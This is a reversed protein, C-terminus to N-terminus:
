YRFTHKASFFDINQDLSLNLAAIKANHLHERLIDIAKETDRELLADIFDIHEKNSIELREIIKKFTLVRLRQNQDYITKMLQILYYNNSKELIASHLEKDLEIYYWPIKNSNQTLKAVLRKKIDKLWDEELSNSVLRLVQPEIIERVQFINNITNVSISTVFIGKKPYINVFNEHELKILAERIPTRSIALQKIIDEESIDEEPMLECSIIKEKLYDYAKQTLGNKEKM